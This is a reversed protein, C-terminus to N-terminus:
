HTTVKEQRVDEMYHPFFGMPVRSQVLSEGGIYPTFIVPSYDIEEPYGYKRRQNKSTPRTFPGQQLFGRDMTLLAVDFGQKRMLAAQVLLELDSDQFPLKKGCPAEFTSSYSESAKYTGLLLNSDRTRPKIRVNHLNDFFAYLRGYDREDFFRKKRKLLGKGIYSSMKREKYWIHATTYSNEVKEIMDALLLANAVRRGFAEPDKTHRMASKLADLPLTLVGNDLFVVDFETAINPISQSSREFIPLDEDIRSMLGM